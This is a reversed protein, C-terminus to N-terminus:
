PRAPRFPTTPLSWKLVPDPRAPDFTLTGEILHKALAPVSAKIGEVVARALQYAGYNSFHTDDKLEQEQGPFTGAPYHVFARKSLEPGLAEYLTKSAAFLDILAVGDERAVQRMAEPYEGLTNVVKGDPGFSRRLMSTVLVPTVGRKRAEGMFHRLHEKYGAFPELHSAGPKQDNHNFQIFLYDGAKWQSAIKALRNEALFAKLTEGSEAHNAVAVEPGFFRPLMQGWAAWPEVTQDTVTSDGALYVTTMHDIPVIELAALAPSDNGFEITLKDDWRLAGVERGKLRVEGGGRIRHERVNVSFSRQEFQGRETEVREIMLQRSEAKVTTVSRMAPDGLTAVVRYNGEPVRVSFFFSGRSRCLDRDAEASGGRDFCEVKSDLDFGYGRGSSYITEEIVRLFGPSAAGPGFDFRFPATPSSSAPADQRPAMALAASFMALLYPGSM